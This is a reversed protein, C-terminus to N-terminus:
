SALQYCTEGNSFRGAVEYREFGYCPALVNLSARVLAIAADFERVADASSMGWEYRAWDDDADHPDDKVKVLLQYGSYYGSQCVVECWGGANKNIDPLLNYCIDNYLGLDAETDWAGTEDDYLYDTDLAWIPAYDTEIFNCTSM